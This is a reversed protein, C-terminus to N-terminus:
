QRGFLASQPPRGALLRPPVLIGRPNKRIGAVAPRAPRPLSIGPVTSSIRSPISRSTWFNKSVTGQSRITSATSALVARGQTIKYTFRHSAAGSWIGSPVSAARSRPVGCPDATLGRSRWGTGANRMQCQPKGPLEGGATRVSHPRRRPASGSRPGPRPRASASRLRISCTPTRAQVRVLGPDHVALIAFATARVLVRRKGEQPEREPSPPTRAPFPFTNVPNVGAALLSAMLFIFAGPALGPSQVRAGASVM